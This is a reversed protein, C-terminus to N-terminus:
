DACAEKLVLVILSLLSWQPRGKRQSRSVEGSDKDSM